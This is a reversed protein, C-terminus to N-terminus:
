GQLGVTDRLHGLGEGFNNKISYTSASTGCGGRRVWLSSHHSVASIEAAKVIAHFALSSARRNMRKLGLSLVAHFVSLDAHAFRRATISAPNCAEKSSYMAPVSLSSASLSWRSKSLCKFPVNPNPPRFALLSCNIISSSPVGSHPLTRMRLRHPPNKWFKRFLFDGLSSKHVM